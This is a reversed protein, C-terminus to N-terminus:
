LPRLTEIITRSLDATEQDSYWFVIEIMRGEEALAYSICPAGDTEDASEACLMQTGNVSRLEVPVGAEAMNKATQELDNQVSAYAFFDIEMRASGAEAGPLIWVFALDGNGEGPAEYVMTDPVDVAYRSGPLQVPRTGEAAAGAATLLLAAALLCIMKRIM